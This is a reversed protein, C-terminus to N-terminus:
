MCVSQLIRHHPSPYRATSSRMKHIVYVWVKGRRGEGSCFASSHHMATCSHAMYTGHGYGDPRWEPMSRPCSPFGNNLPGLHPPQAPPIAHISLMSAYVKPVCLLAGVVSPDRMSHDHWGGCM